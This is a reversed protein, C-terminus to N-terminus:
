QSRRRGHDEPGGAPGTLVTERRTELQYRGGGTETVLVYQGATHLMPQAYSHSRKAAEGGKENLFLLSTDTLLATNRGAQGMAVVTDGSIACPFGEGKAGGSFQQDAWDLLAEPALVDWNQWVVLGLVVVAAVFLLRVAIKLQPHRKKGSGPRLPFWASNGPKRSPPAPREVRRSYGQDAKNGPAHLGRRRVQHKSVTVDRKNAM